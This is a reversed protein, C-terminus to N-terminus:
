LRVFPGMRNATLSCDFLSPARTQIILLYLCRQDFQPADHIVNTAFSQLRQQRLEDVDELTVTFETIIAVFAFSSRKLAVAPM